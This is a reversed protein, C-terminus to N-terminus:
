ELDPSAEEVRLPPASNRGFRYAIESGERDEYSSSAAVPRAIKEDWPLKEMPPRFAPLIGVV